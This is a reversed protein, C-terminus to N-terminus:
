NTELGVEWALKIAGPLMQRSMGCFPNGQLFYKCEMNTKTGLIMRLDVIEPRDKLPM